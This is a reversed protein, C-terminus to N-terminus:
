ESRTEEKMLREMMRRGHLAATDARCHIDDSPDSDPTLNAEVAEAAAIDEQLAAGISRLMRGSVGEDDRLFNRTFAWFYHSSRDTEPSIAHLIRANAFEKGPADGGQDASTFRSGTVHLSPPFFFQTMTRDVLGHMSVTRALSLNEATEGKIRRNIELYGERLDVESGTGAVSASGITNEHLYTLHSLDLLNEHLLEYRANLHEVGGITASWGEAEVFLMSHDPIRAPDALEPEGMWIWIWRWKEVVPFTRVRYGEPIRQQAPIHVCTGNADFTFGHYRCQVQDGILKGQSLPIRRHPCMDLMATVKGALTRYLMVPAGLLRRRLATRSVEDSWAAVYWQNLPFTHSGSFPYM